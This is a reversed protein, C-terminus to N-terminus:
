IMKKYVLLPVSTKFAYEESQSSFVIKKLLGKQHDTFMVLLNANSKELVSDIKKTLQESRNMLEFHLKVPFGIRKMLVEAQKRKSEISEIPKYCHLIEVKSLLPLALDIVTLLENKLINFDSAYLIKKIKSRRYNKPVVIVPVPSHSILNTATNGFIKTLNEAGRTGICIFDFQQELAHELICSEAFIGKSIVSKFHTPILKMEKYVAYVFQNLKEHIKFSENNEYEKFKEDSWRSPKLLKYSHFFTLEVATQSALQIAFRMGVKSNTSFDTAVLIKKM